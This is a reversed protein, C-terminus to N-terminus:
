RLKFPFCTAVKRTKLWHVRIHRKTKRIQPYTPLSILYTYLYQVFYGFHIAYFQSSGMGEHWIGQGKRANPKSNPLRTPLSNVFPRHVERWLLVPIGTTNPPLLLVWWFIPPPQTLLSTPLGTATSLQKHHSMKFAHALQRVSCVKLWCLILWKLWLRRKPSTTYSTKRRSSHMRWLTTEWRTRILSPRLVEAKSSSNRRESQSPKLSPWLDENRRQRSLFKQVTAWKIRAM